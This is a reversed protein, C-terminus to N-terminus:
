KCLLDTYSIFIGSMRWGTKNKSAEEPMQMVM